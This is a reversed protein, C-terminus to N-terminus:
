QINQTSKEDVNNGFFIKDRKDQSLALVDCIQGIESQTFERRSNMKYSLSARSMGIADALQEATMEKRILAIKFETLNTM